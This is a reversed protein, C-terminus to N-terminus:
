DLRLEKRCCGTGNLMRRPTSGATPLANAGVGEANVRAIVFAEGPLSSFACTREGECEPRRVDCIGSDRTAAALALGCCCRVGAHGAGDGDSLKGDGDGPGGDRSRSLRSLSLMCCLTCRVLTCGGRTACARCVCLSFTSSIMRRCLISSDIWLSLAMVRLALSSCSLTPRSNFSRFSRSCASPARSCASRALSGESASSAFSAHSAAVRRMPAM